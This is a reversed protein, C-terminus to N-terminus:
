IRISTSSFTKSFHFVFACEDSFLNYKSKELELIICIFHAFLHHIPSISFHFYSSLNWNWRFQLLLLFFVWIYHAFSLSGFLFDSVAACQTHQCFAKEMWQIEFVRWCCISLLNYLHYSFENVIPFVIIGHSRYINM